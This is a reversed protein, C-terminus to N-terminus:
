ASVVQAGAELPIWEVRWKVQGTNSASTKLRISSGANLVFPAAQFVAAAGSTVLANAFTGTISLMTDTLENRISAVACLDTTGFVSDWAHLSANCAQDQVRTTVTGLISLVKVRGTTTFINASQTQPLNATAKYTIFKNDITGSGTIIVVGKTEANTIETSTPATTFDPATVIIDGNSATCAAIADTYNTYVRNIGDEDPTYNLNLTNWLAGSTASVFFVKGLSFPTGKANNYSIINRTPM